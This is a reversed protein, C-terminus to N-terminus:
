TLHMVSYIAPADHGKSSFFIGEQSSDLRIDSAPSLYNRISILLEISSFSTGIHGSGAAKISALINLRCANALTELSVSEKLSKDFRKRDWFKLVLGSELQRSDFSKM